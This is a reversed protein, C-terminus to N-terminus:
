GAAVREPVGGRLVRIASILGGTLTYLVVVPVSVGEGRALPMVVFDPADATATFTSVVDAVIGDHDVTIRNVALTERVRAFMATYFDVIAQRGVMPPASPLALTVDDTYFAAARGMDGDSFAQAYARFAARQGPDPGLRPAKTVGWEPPWTMSKLEVILGDRLTYTVFFKVTRIDGPMLAGFPFEPRPRTAIFDMDIECFITDGDRLMHQLRIIERVGDHAWRLFALLEGKGRHLRSGGTFAIDPHYFREVLAADDGTNFAIVYDAYDM